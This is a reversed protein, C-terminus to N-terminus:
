HDMEPMDGIIRHSRAADHQSAAVDSLGGSWEFTTKISSKRRCVTPLAGNSRSSYAKSM